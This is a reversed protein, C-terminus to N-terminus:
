SIMFTFREACWAQASLWPLDACRADGYTRHCVSIEAIYLIVADEDSLSQVLHSPRRVVHNIQDKVGDTRKSQQM